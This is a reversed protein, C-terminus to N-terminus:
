NSTLRFQPEAFCTYFLSLPYLRQAPKLDELAQQISKGELCLREMFLAGYRTAFLNNIECESGIFGQFGLMSSINSFSANWCGTGTQCGNVFCISNSAPRDAQNKFTTIFGTLDLRYKSNDDNALYINEGDSHGFIYLLRPAGDPISRWTRRTSAWDTCSGVPLDLLTKIRDIEERTLNNKVKTFEEQNLAHLVFFKDSPESDFDALRSRNFSVNIISFINTWFDDFDNLTGSPAKINTADGRFIFNWPAHLPTSEFLITLPVRKKLKTIYQQADKASEASGHVRTFVAAALKEGALALDPLFQTYDPNNRRNIECHEYHAAIDKLVSRVENSADDVLEKSVFYADIAGNETGWILKFLDNDASSITLRLKM